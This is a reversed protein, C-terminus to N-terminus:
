GSHIHGPHLILRLLMSQTHKLNVCKLPGSFAVNDHGAYISNGDAGPPVAFHRKKAAMVKFLYIM